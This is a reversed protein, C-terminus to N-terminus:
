GGECAGNYGINSEELWGLSDINISGVNLDVHVWGASTGIAMLYDGTHLTALLASSTNSDAYVPTDGMVMAYCLNTIPGVVLPVSACDGSLTASATKLVWRNRFVGVNGAQAVGPDFGYFGDTTRAMPKIVQGAGLTGFVDAAASPRRYIDLADTATLQCPVPPTFTETPPVPVTPPVPTSGPTCSVLTIIAALILFWRKM